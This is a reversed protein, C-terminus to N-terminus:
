FSHRATPYAWWNPWGGNPKPRGSKLAAREEINRLFLELVARREPSPMQAAMEIVVANSPRGYGHDLITVAAARARQASEGADNM